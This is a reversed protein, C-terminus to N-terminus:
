PPPMTVTSNQIGHYAENRREKAEEHVTFRAQLFAVLLVYSTESREARSLHYSKIHAPGSNTIKAQSDSGQQGGQNKSATFQLDSDTRCKAGGPAAQIQM